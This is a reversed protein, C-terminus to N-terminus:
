TGYVAGSSSSAGTSANTAILNNKLVVGLPDIQLVFEFLVYV